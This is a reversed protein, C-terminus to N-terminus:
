KMKVETDAFSCIGTLQYSVTQQKYHQDSDPDTWILVLGCCTHIQFLPGHKTICSVLTKSILWTYNPWTSCQHWNSKTINIDTQDFDRKKRVVIAYKWTLMIVCVNEKFSTCYLQPLYGYVVVHYCWLIRLICCALMKYWLSYPFLWM